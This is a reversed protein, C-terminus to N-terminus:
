RAVIRELIVFKGKYFSLSNKAQDDLEFVLTRNEHTSEISSPLHLKESDFNVGVSFKFEKEVDFEENYYYLYFSEIQGNEPILNSITRLHALFFSHVNRLMIESFGNGKLEKMWLLWARIGISNIGKLGECDILLTADKKEPLIKPLDHNDGLWGILSVTYVNETFAEHWTEFGVGTPLAKAEEILKKQFIEASKMKTSLASESYPPMLIQSVGKQILSRLSDMDVLEACVVSYANPNLTRVQGALDLILKLNNDLKVFIGKLRQALNVNAFTAQFDAISQFVRIEAYPDVKRLLDGLQVRDKQKADIVAYAVQFSM